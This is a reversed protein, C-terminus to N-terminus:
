MRAIRCLNAVTAIAVRRPVWQSRTRQCKSCIKSGCHDRCQTYETECQSGYWEENSQPHNISLMLM